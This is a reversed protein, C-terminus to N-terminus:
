STVVSWIASPTGTRCPLDSTSVFIYESDKVPRDDWWRLLTKRLETTMPIWDDELNSGLGKRIWVRIRNKSFDVDAWKLNFVEKSRV